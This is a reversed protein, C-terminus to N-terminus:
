RRRGQPGHAFREFLKELDELGKMAETYFDSAADDGIARADDRARVLTSTIGRLRTGVHNAVTKRGM